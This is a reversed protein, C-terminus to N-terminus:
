LDDKQLFILFLWSFLYMCYIDGAHETTYGVFFAEKGKDTIKLKFVIQSHILIFGMEGFIRLHKIFGPNRKFMKMYNNENQKKGFLIGDLDTTTKACEAWLKKRLEGQFKGYNLIARVRRYMTAFAREVIGNQQPTGPALFEM